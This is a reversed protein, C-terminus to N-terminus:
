GEGYVRPRKGAIIGGSLRINDKDIYVTEVYDGPFVQIVDGPNAAKVADMILQGPKVQHIQGVEGHDIM